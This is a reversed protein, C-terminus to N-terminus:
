DYGTVTLYAGEASLSATNEQTLNIVIWKGQTDWAINDSEISVAFFWSEETCWYKSNSRKMFPFNPVYSM